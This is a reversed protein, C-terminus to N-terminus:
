QDMPQIALTVASRLTRWVGIISDGRTSGARPRHRYRLRYVLHGYWIGHAGHTYLMKNGIAIFHFIGNIHESFIDCPVSPPKYVVGILINYGHTNILEIFYSEIESNNLSLDNRTNYNLGHKIYLAVGGGRKNPRCSGEISYDQIQILPDNIDKLWSESIGIVSFKNEFLNLMEIVNSGNKPLSPANLINCSLDLTPVLLIYSNVNIM